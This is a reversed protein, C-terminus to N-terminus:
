SMIVRHHDDLKLPTNEAVSENVGPTRKVVGNSGISFLHGCPIPDGNEDVVEIVIFSEGLVGGTAKISWKEKKVKIFENDVLFTTPFIELASELPLNDNFFLGGSRAIRLSEVLDSVGMMRETIALSIPKMLEYKKM